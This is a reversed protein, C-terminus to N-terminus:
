GSAPAARAGVRRPQAALEAPRILVACLAAGALALIGALLLLHNLGAM